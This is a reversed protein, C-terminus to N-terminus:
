WRLLVLESCFGPGMALMLGPTGPPPAVDRLTDHLVFLVSASSLNGIRELSRWTVALAERPVGLAAQVAELVKPGGPHSVWATVDSMALDHDHLFGKVDDGINSEVVDPVSPSLVLRLGESGVDWGMVRQTDPYLRSRTALVAPGALGMAAARREGVMVVAAAGDGFLGTAVLYPLSSDAKISLSCLEVSLLVAVDDPHGLLYDHLRAVGAAGAVCGLGFVPVRKVDPRLGLRGHMLADLSPAAVGTVTVTMLADVDAPRLGCRQLAECVAREGLLMGQEIFANNADTFGALQAYRWKPLAVHRTKVRTAAHLARLMKRARPGGGPLGDPLVVEAFAETIEAQEYCHEPLAGAVSAIVSHRMGGM